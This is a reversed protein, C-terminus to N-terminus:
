AEVNQSPTTMRCLPSEQVMKLDVKHGVLDRMNNIKNNIMTPRETSLGWAIVSVNAPLGMPELMEPRFVGSNGIEVWKGLGEHLAFIEMSPETYPNFAPKFRLEKMGIKSFFEKLIGILNGLTLDYDAILGEVQNFEALHTADMTENRFVKDISFYKVPRFEKQQALKYLMRSSVATTHTRLLNKQAEEIKWDYRYGVSGFGGTEHTQKVRELYEMDEIDAKAPCKVFFTDHADRAPHQQPQFLTDFNWFSSEVYNNTPMEEFGMELFVKRFESRVKWLPHLAGGRPAIGLVGNVTKPKFTTEKWSGNKIMESTIDGATKKITTSFATGPEVMYYKIAKVKVLNRKKLDTLVKPSNDSLSLKGLAEQVNDVIHDATRAVTGAKKDLSVWKNNMAKGFGRKAFDKSMIDKHTCGEPPIAHFVRAEPSGEKSSQAGEDTLSWLSMEAVKTKIFEGDLSSAAASAMAGVVANHDLRLAEAWEYTNLATGKKSAEDVATLFQAQM